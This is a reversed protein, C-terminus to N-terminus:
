RKPEEEATPAEAGMRADIREFSVTPADPPPLVMMPRADIGHDRVELVHGTGPLEIKVLGIVPIADSTWIRRVSTGRFFVEVPDALLSGAQTMLRQPQGRVVRVHERVDAPARQPKAVSPKQPGGGWLHLEAPDVEFPRAAGYGVFLRSMEWRGSLPTMLARMQAMPAVMNPHQGFDLEVWRAERGQADREKGVVAMRWFAERGPGGSVRYTVWEGPVLAGAASSVQDLLAGAVDREAGARAKSSASKSAPSHSNSPPTTGTALLPAAGILAAALALRRPSM